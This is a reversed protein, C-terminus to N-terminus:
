KTRLLNYKITPSNHQGNKGSFVKKAEAQKIKDLEELAKMNCYLLKYQEMTQYKELKKIQRLYRDKIVNERKQESTMIKPKKKVCTSKIQIAGFRDRFPTNFCQFNGRPDGPIESFQGKVGRGTQSKHGCSGKSCGGSGMEGQGGAEMRNLISDVSTGAELEENLKFVLDKLVGKSETAKLIQQLQSSTFGANRSISEITEKRIRNVDESIKEEGFISNYSLRGTEKIQNRFFSNPKLLNRLTLHGYDRIIRNTNM